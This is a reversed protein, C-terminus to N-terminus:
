GAFDVSTTPVPRSAELDTRILNRVYACKTIGKERAKQELEEAEKTRISTTINSAM